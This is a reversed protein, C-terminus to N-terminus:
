STARLGEWWSALYEEEGVGVPIRYRGHLCIQGDRVLRESFTPSPPSNRREPHAAEDPTFHGRPYASAEHCPGQRYGVDTFRLLVERINSLFSGLYEGMFEHHSARRGSRPSRPPIPSPSCAFSFQRGSSVASSPIQPVSGPVPLVAGPEPYSIAGNPTPTQFAPALGLATTQLQKPDFCKTLKEAVGSRSIVAVHVKVDGNPQTPWWIETGCTLRVPTLPRELQKPVVCHTGPEQSGRRSHAYRLGTGISPASHRRGALRAASPSVPSQFESLFSTASSPSAMTHRRGDSSVIPTKLPSLRSLITNLPRAPADLFHNPSYALLQSDFSKLNDLAQQDIELVREEDARPLVPRPPGCASIPCASRLSTGPSILQRAQYASVSRPDPYVPRVVSTPCDEM